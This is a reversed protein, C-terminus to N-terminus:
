SDQSTPLGPWSASAALRDYEARQDGQLVHNRIMDRYRLGLRNLRPEMESMSTEFAQQRLDELEQDYNRMLEGLLWAREPRLEFQAVFMREYDEFRGEATYDPRTQEAILLGGAGGALFSTLALAAV